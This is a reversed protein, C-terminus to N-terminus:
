MHCSPLRASLAMHLSFLPGSPTPLLPGKCGLTWECGQRVGGSGTPM